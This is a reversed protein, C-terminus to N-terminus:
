SLTGGNYNETILDVSLSGEYMLDGREYETIVIEM